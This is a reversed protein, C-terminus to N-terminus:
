GRRSFKEMLREAVKSAEAMVEEEDIYTIRRDEMLVEGDVIVTEINESTAAYILNAIPDHVYVTHPKHLDLIILDARKGARDRICM